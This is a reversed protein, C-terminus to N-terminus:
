LTPHEDQRRAEKLIRDGVYDPSDINHITIRSSEGATEISLDGTRFIRQWLSRDVRIDQVKLLEMTRTSRSFLGQQMRLKGNGITLSTMRARTHAIIARLLLLAPALAHLINARELGAYVYISYAAALGSLVYWPVVPKLSPRVILAAM